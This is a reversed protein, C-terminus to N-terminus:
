ITSEGTYQGGPGFQTSKLQGVVIRVNRKLLVISVGTEVKRM